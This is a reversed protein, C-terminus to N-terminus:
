VMTDYLKHSLPHHLEQEQMSRTWLESRELAVAIQSICYIELLAVLSIKQLM